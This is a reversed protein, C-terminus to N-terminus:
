IYVVSSEKRIWNRGVTRIYVRIPRNERHKTANYSECSALIRKSSTQRQLVICTVALSYACPLFYYCLLPLRFLLVSVPIYFGFEVPSPHLRLRFFFLTSSMQWPFVNRRGGGDNEIQNKLLPERVNNYVCVVIWRCLIYSFCLFFSQVWCKSLKFSCFFSALFIHNILHAHWFSLRAVEACDFKKKKQITYIVFLHHVIMMMMEVSFVVASTM